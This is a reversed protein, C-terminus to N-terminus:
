EVHIGGEANEGGRCSEKRNKAFYTRNEKRNKAFSAHNEKRNKAFVFFYANFIFPIPM